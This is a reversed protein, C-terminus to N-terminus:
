FPEIEDIYNLEAWEVINYKEFKNKWELERGIPVNFFIIGSSLDVDHKENLELENMSNLWDQQYIKNDMGFLIPFITIQSTQYHLYGTVFWNVGDNTYDKKNLYDLVYQLSDSPLDSTFTLSNVNDVKLDFLNVFNFLDSIETGSKIGVFVEGPVFKRNDTVASDNSCSSFLGILAILLIIKKM